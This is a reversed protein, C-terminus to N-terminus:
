DSLWALAGYGPLFSLLNSEGSSVDVLYSGWGGYVLLQSGDPSWAISPDDNLVDRVQRLDSGDAHVLWVEWPIGHARAVQLDAAPGIVSIGAFAITQGDPSYRPYSLGFFREDTFIPTDSGDVLSHAVLEAHQDVYRVFVVHSGDPSPAPYRADDIVLRDTSGDLGVQGVRISPTAGHLTHEFVVSAGDPMLVPADLLEDSVHRSLLPHLAGSQLDVTVLDTGMPGTGNFPSEISAVALASGAIATSDAPYSPLSSRRSRGRVPRESRAVRGAWADLRSGSWRGRRCARRCVLRAPQRGLCRTAPSLLPVGVLLAALGALVHCPCVVGTALVGFGLFRRPWAVRFTM